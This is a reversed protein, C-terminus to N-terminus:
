ESLIESIKDLLERVDLEEAKSMFIDHGEYFAIRCLDEIESIFDNRRQRNM